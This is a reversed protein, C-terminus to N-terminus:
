EKLISDYKGKNDKRFDSWERIKNRTTNSQYYGQVRKIDFDAITLNPQSKKAVVRVGMVKLNSLKVNRFDSDKASVYQNFDGNNFTHWVLMRVASRKERDKSRFCVSISRKSQHHTLVYGDAIRRVTGLSSVEHDEFGVLTIQKWIEKEEM